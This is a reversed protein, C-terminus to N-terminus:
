NDHANAEVVCSLGTSQHRKIRNQSRVGSEHALLDHSVHHRQKTSGILSCIDVTLRTPKRLLAVSKQHSKVGVITLDHLAHGECHFGNITRRNLGVGFFQVLIILFAVDIGVVLQSRDFYREIISGILCGHLHPCLIASIIKSVKRLM